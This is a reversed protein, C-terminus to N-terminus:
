RRVQDNNDVLRLLERARFPKRLYGAVGLAHARAADDDGDRATLVIVPLALGAERVRRLVELGDIDPLGLDLLVLDAAIGAGPALLLAVAAAGVGVVQVRHQARRLLTSLVSAIRPEDEVVLVNM